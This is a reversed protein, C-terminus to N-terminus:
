YRDNRDRYEGFDAGKAMGALEERKPVPVLKVRDLHDIFAFEQGPWWKKRDRLEKPVVLQYKSNLTVVSM